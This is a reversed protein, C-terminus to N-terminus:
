YIIQLTIYIYIYIYLYIYLINLEYHIMDQCFAKPWQLTRILKNQSANPKWWIEAKIQTWEEINWGFETVNKSRLIHTWRLDLAKNKGVNFRFDSSMPIDIIPRTLLVHVMLVLPIRTLCMILWQFQSTCVVSFAFILILMDNTDSVSM